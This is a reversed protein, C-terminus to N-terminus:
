TLDGQMLRTAIYGFHMGDLPITNPADPDTGLPRIYKQVRKGNIWLAEVEAYYTKITGDKNKRM